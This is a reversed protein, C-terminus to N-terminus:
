ILSKIKNFDTVSFKAESSFACSIFSNKLSCLNGLASLVTFCDSSVIQKFLSQSVLSLTSM